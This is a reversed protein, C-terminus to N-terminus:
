TDAEIDTEDALALIASVLDPPLSQPDVEVGLITLAEIKIDDWQVWRPSGPVIYDTPEGTASFTVEVAGTEYIGTGRM